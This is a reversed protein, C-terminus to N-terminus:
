QVVSLAIIADWDDPEVGDLIAQNRRVAGCSRCAYILVMKDGNRDIGTPDLIGRCTELRDGPVRDVHLSRLCTPCHDRATRGHRRVEQGCHACSFDEDRAIPNSRTRAHGERHRALRLLRKEPWNLAEDPIEVGRNRALGIVALKLESDGELELAMRKLAGRGTTADLIEAARQRLLDM